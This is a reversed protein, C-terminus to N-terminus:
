KEVSSILANSFSKTIEARSSAAINNNIVNSTTNGLVILAMEVSVGDGLIDLIKEVLNNVEENTYKSIIPM